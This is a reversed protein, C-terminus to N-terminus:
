WVKKPEAVVVGAVTNDDAVISVICIKGLATVKICNDPSRTSIRMSQLVRTAERVLTDCFWRIADFGSVIDEGARVAMFGMAGWILPQQSGSNISYIDALELLTFPVVKTQGAMLECFRVGWMVEWVHHEAAGGATM